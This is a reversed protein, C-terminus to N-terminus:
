PPPGRLFKEERKMRLSISGRYSECEWTFGEGAERPHGNEGRRGEEGKGKPLHVQAGVNPIAARQALLQGQLAWHWEERTVLDIQLVEQGLVNRGGPSPPEGTERSGTCTKGM